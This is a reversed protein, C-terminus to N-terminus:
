KVSIKNEKINFYLNTAWDTSKSQAKTRCEFATIM